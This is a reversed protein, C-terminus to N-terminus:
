KKEEKWYAVSKAMQAAQNLLQELKEGSRLDVVDGMKTHKMVYEPDNAARTIGDFLIKKKDESLNPASVLFRAAYCSVDKGFIEKFTPVTPMGKVRTDNLIVLPKLKAELAYPIFYAVNGGLADSSKGLLASIKEADSNAYLFNVKLDGGLAKLAAVAGLHDDGGVGSLHWNLKGPNKKIYNVFDKVTQFREDGERVAWICPDLTHLTLWGFSELTEKRKLRPDLYSLIHPLNAYGLMYEDAPAKWKAMDAWAVWGGGGGKNVVNVPVGLAKSLYPAFVRASRDTGGGPKWPIILQIAKSPYIGAANAHKLGVTLGFFMFSVVLLFSMLRVGTNEKKCKM